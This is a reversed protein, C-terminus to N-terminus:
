KRHSLAWDLNSKAAEYGPKLRLAERAARIGEDWKQMAIYAAATNGYAEAYDPRLEIAEQAAGLCETYNGQNCYKASLRLLSEPTSREQVFQRALEDNHTLKLSEEILRDRTRWKQQATYLEILLSRAQFYNANMKLTTELKAQAEELRGKSKLWRGYYFYPEAIKPALSVAHEFQRVADDDRGLGAYALGLNIEASYYDPMLGQARKLYPLADSFDNRAMLAIGYNMMGVGNKPSKVTVDRWLSEETHWVQNRVHTGAAEASVVALALGATAIVPIRLPLKSLGYVVALALGVFPFFMRHDNTVEALPMLATPILALLFWTIGFAIPRLESRKSTYWISAILAIVFLYGAIAEVGFPSIYTWDSNASLQTPLFFSVFYHLAVWPQAIRYLADSAAGGQFSSPTLKATAIAAVITVVFAPVVTRVSRLKEKEFLWVYALLILPFILAPAKSLFALVAPILYWGWKRQGPRAVFWLLSAVVGLTSYIEARQIIYNVTEANAPHLGYCATAALAIWFNKTLREFLFVMLVLQLAFWLFTSLHFFSPQFGRGLRYDVALSTTVLPRYMAHDPMTSSLMPDAFFRPINRLDELYVNDTISHIDDYHFDNLFHNAYAALLALLLAAISGVKM